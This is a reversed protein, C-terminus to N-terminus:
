AQILHFLIVAFSLLFFPALGTMLGTRIEEGGGREEEEGEEEEEEEEDTELASLGFFYLM